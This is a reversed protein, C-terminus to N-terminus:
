IKHATEADTVCFYKQNQSLDFVGSVRGDYVPYFYHFGTLSGPGPGLGHGDM